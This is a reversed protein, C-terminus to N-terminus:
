VSIKQLGDVALASLNNLLDSLALM